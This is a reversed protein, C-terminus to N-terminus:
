RKLSLIVRATTEAIVRQGGGEPHIGDAAFHATEILPQLPTLMDLATAGVDDAVAKLDEEMLSANAKGKLGHGKGTPGLRTWVVFKPKSGDKCFEKLLNVYQRRFLGKEVPLCGACNHEGMYLECDNIGLNSVVIDPRFAYANAASAGKRWPHPCWKGDPAKPELYVGSGPDGCNLVEYGGGLLRQLQAPYCEEVRNTMATGWTISDGICAIRIRRSGTRQGRDNSGKELWAFINKKLLRAEPLNAFVDVGSVLVERSGDPREKAAFNLFCARQGETVVVADEAAYGPVPMPEGRRFLRMLLPSLHPEYPFDGWVPHPMAAAGVFDFRGWDLDWWNPMINPETDLRSYVLLNKGAQRAAEAEPSNLMAVVVNGHEEEKVSPFFWFPWSNVLNGLRVSMTVKEPKTVAPVRIREKAITRSPGVAQSAVAKTGSLLEHGGVDTFSWRLCARSLDEEGYHALIFEVPLESGAEYVRNTEEMKLVPSFTCCYKKDTAERYVRTRDETDILVCSPSNFMAFTELSNGCRKVDWFQDLYGQAVATNASKNPHGFDLITWFVYGDCYPDKRASEIGCKQWYAQVANQADQLSEGWRETLGAAELMPLRSERTTRPKMVGTYKPASRYDVKVAINMYEHCIFARPNFSGREWMTMPGSAYDSTEGGHNRFYTGGDQEIVLLGLGQSKVYDYLAKGLCPGHTGENGGSFVGWSPYRRYTRVVAAADRLPDHEFVEESAEDCAYSLEGQVIIGAEDAAEFYEPLEYHTHTRVYNFGAKRAKLLHALHEERSAPSFGTLPYTHDDGFGRFFFPKNNLYFEKGRVELKRVGFRERRTMTVVGDKLLEITAWYLNPHEPSWPRFNRLPVELVFDSSSSSCALNQERTEGEVTARLVFDGAIGQGQDELRVEVYAKRADFDGKVWADDILVQPTAEFEVDRVIGGWHHVSLAGSNRSPYTNDVQVVIEVERGPTVLDTVDWKLAGHNDTVRGVPHGDLWFWGWVRVGGEKLWIRKGQWVAPITVRKRYWGNGWHRNRLEYQLHGSGFGPEGVGSAEWCGPVKVTTAKEWTDHGHFNVGRQYFLDRSQMAHLGPAFEWDGRLSLINADEGRGVPNVVAVHSPRGAWFDDANSGTAAITVALILGVNIMHPM